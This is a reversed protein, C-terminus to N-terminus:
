QYKQKSYKDGRGPFDFGLWAEIEYAESIEKNRDDNDVEVVRCREKKDAGAKHNLVADFYVGIGLEKGKATLAQLEEKSGWKTRVAGKADFEGLDYLSTTQSACARALSIRTDSASELVGSLWM